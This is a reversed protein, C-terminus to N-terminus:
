AVIRKSEEGTFHLRFYPLVKIFIPVTTTLLIMGKVLNFPAIGYIVLNLKETANLPWNLLYAYAPLLIFYNAVSMVVSMAITGLVIGYLLGKISRLKQYCFGAVYVLTSGALFNSLQGIPIGTESGKIVFHIINKIGEVGVGALPGFVTAILLAPIESFDIKLFSPFVPLPFDFFQMLFGITGMLSITVMRVIKSKKQM